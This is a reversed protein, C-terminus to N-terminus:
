ISNLMNACDFGKNYASEIKHKVLPVNCLDVDLIKAIVTIIWLKM